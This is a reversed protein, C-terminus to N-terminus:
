RGEDEKEERPEDVEYWGDASDTDVCSTVNEGDKTLMKGEDAVLRVMETYECDPKVPSVTVGGDAREYKYLKIIQM